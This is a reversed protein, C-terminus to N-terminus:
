PHSQTTQAAAGPQPKSAASILLTGFALLGFLPIALNRNGM